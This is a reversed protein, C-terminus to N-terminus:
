GFPLGTHDPRIANVANIASVHSLQNDSLASKPTLYTFSEGVSNLPYLPPYTHNEEDRADGM